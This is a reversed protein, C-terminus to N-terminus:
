VFLKEDTLLTLNVLKGCIIVCCCSVAYQERGHQFEPVPTFTFIV